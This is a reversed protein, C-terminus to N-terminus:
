KSEYIFDCTISPLQGRQIINYSMPPPEDPNAQIEIIPRFYLLNDNRVPQQELRQQQINTNPTQSISLNKQTQYQATAQTQYLQQNPIVTHNQTKNYMQTANQQVNQYQCNQQYKYQQQLAMQKQQQYQQQPAAQTGQYYSAPANQYYQASAGHTQMQIPKSSSQSQYTSSSPYPITYQPPRYTM